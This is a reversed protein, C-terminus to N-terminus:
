TIELHVKAQKIEDQAKEKGNRVSEDVKVMYENIIIKKNKAAEIM